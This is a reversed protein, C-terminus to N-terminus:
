PQSRTLRFGLLSGRRTPEWSRRHDPRGFFASQQWGGGRFVRQSGEAPGSPDRRPSSAYYDASDWDGVWEWVNGITDYLGFANAAYTRAATTEGVLNAVNARTVDESNGWPYRTTSGARAVYEWEAETLLRYGTCGAVARVSSFRFDGVCHGLGESCGGGLTGSQGSVEYCATCGRDASLANAYAIAEYWNVQEVPCDDGCTSFYSPNPTGSPMTALWQGQQVETEGVCMGHTIEVEHQPRESSDANTDSSGMDFSGPPVYVFGTECTPAPPPPPSTDAPRTDAVMASAAEATAESSGTDPTSADPTSEADPTSAGRVEEGTNPEEASGQGGGLVAAGIAGLLGGIVTAIVIPLLGRRSPVVPPPEPRVALREEVRRVDRDIADLDAVGLAAPREVLRTREARLGDLLGIVDAHRRLTAQVSELVREPRGMLDHADRLARHMAAADPYREEPRKAIAKALVTGLPTSAISPPLPHPAPGLHAAACVGQHQKTGPEYGAGVVAVGTLLEALCLGMAYVDSSPKAKGLGGAAWQEPPLYPPTGIPNGGSADSTRDIFGAIGFDCLKVVDGNAGERVLINPLKIDRHIIGLTHAASLGALAQLGIDIVRSATTPGKAPHGEFYEIVAFHLRREEDYGGEFFRIVHPNQLRALIERERVFRSVDAGSEPLLVKIAVRAQQGLPQNPRQAMYVAGFGGAAIFRTIEYGQFLAGVQPLASHV